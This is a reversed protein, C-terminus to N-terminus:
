IRKHKKLTSVTRYFTSESIGLLEIIEKNPLPDPNSDFYILVLGSANLVGIEHLHKAEELSILTSDNDPAPEGQAPDFSQLTMM